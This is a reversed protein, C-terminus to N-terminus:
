RGGATYRVPAWTRTARDYPGSAHVPLEIPPLALAVGDPAMKPAKDPGGLADLIAADRRVIDTFEVTFTDSGCLLIASPRGRKETGDQATYVEGESVKVLRGRLM